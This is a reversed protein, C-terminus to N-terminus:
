QEMYQKILTNFEEESRCRKEEGDSTTVRCQLVQDVFESTFKFVLDAFEKREFADTVTITHLIGSSSTDQTRVEMVCKNLKANYHNEFSAQWNDNNEKFGLATFESQAQKACKDQLELTLVKMKTDLTQRLERNEKELQAIRDVNCGSLLALSLLLLCRM